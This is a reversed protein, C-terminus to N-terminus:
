RGYHRERPPLQQKLATRLKAVDETTGMGREIRQLADAIEQEQEQYLRPDTM